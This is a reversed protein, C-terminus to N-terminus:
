LVTELEAVSGIVHHCLPALLEPGSAGSLVGVVLGAGARAGMRCDHRTDGVVAVEPAPIAVRSCFAEVMGPEPKEGFGSDCGCVFDFLHEMALHALTERVGRETDMTAVGLAIGRSRLRALVEAAGAVAVPAARVDRDFVAELRAEIAGADAGPIARAWEEALERTTGCAILAGPEWTASAADYGGLALLRAVESDALGLASCTERAAHEFAPIWSARFDVLTGDKDLLVARVPPRSM